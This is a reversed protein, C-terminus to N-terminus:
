NPEVGDGGTKAHRIGYLNSLLCERGPSVHGLPWIVDLGSPGCCTKGMWGNVSTEGM